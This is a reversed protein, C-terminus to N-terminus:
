APRLRTQSQHHSGCKIKRHKRHFYEHPKQDRFTIRKLFHSAFNLHQAPLRLCRSFDRCRIRPTCVRSPSKKQSKDSYRSANSRNVRRLRVTSFTRMSISPLFTVQCPLLAYAHHAKLQAPRVREFRDFRKQSIKKEVRVNNRHPRQSEQAPRQRAKDRFSTGHWHSPTVGHNSPTGRDRQERLTLAHFQLCRKRRVHIRNHNRRHAVPLRERFIGNGRQLGCPRQVLHHQQRQIWVIRIRRREAAHFLPPAHIPTRCTSRWFSHDFRKIVM